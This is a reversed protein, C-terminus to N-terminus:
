SERRDLGEIGEIVDALRDTKVTSFDATHPVGFHRPLDVEPARRAEAEVPADSGLRVRTGAGQVRGDEPELP